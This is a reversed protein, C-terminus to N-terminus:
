SGNYCTQGTGVCACNSGTGVLAPRRCLACFPPSYGICPNTPPEGSGRRVGAAAASSPTSRASWRFGRVENPRLVACGNKMKGSFNSGSACGACRCRGPYAHRAPIAAAPHGRTARAPGHASWRRGASYGEAAPRQPPLSDRGTGGWAPDSRRWCRMECEASGARDTGALDHM